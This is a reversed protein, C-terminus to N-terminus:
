SNLVVKGINDKVWKKNNHTEAKGYSQKRMDRVKSKETYARHTKNAVEWM